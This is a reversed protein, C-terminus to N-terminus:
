SQRKKKGKGIEIGETGFIRHVFGNRYLKVLEMRVYNENLNLVKAIGSTTMIRMEYIIKMAQRQCSSFKFELIFRETVDEPHVAREDRKM